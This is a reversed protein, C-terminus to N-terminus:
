LRTFTPLTYRSDPFHASMQGISLYGLISSRMLAPVGEVPLSAGTLRIGPLRVPLDRPFDPYMALAVLVSLGAAYESQAELASRYYREPDVGDGINLDLDLFGWGLTPQNGYSQYALRMDQSQVTPECVTGPHVEVVWRLLEAFTSALDGLWVDPVLVRNPWEGSEKPTTAQLADYQEKGFPWECLM